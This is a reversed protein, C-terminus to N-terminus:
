LYRETQLFTAVIGNQLYLTMKASWLVGALRGRNEGKGLHGTTTEERMKDPYPLEAFYERKL